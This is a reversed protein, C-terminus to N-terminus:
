LQLILRSIGQTIASRKKAVSRKIGFMKTVPFSERTRLEVYYHHHPALDLGLHAGGNPGSAMWTNATFKYTGPIFSITVFRGPRIKALQDDDVFLRGKFGDSRRGPVRGYFLDPELLFNRACPSRRPSYTTTHQNAGTIFPSMVGHCDRAAFHPPTIAPATPRCKQPNNRNLCKKSCEESHTLRPCTVPCPIDTDPNRKYWHLRPDQPNIQGFGTANTPAFELGSDHEVGHWRDYATMFMGDQSFFVFKWPGVQATMKGSQWSYHFGVGKMRGFRMEASTKKISPGIFQKGDNAFYSEYRVTGLWEHAQPSASRDENIQTLRLAGLKNGKRILLFKELPLNLGDAHVCFGTQGVTSQSSSPATILFGCAAATLALKIPNRHRFM